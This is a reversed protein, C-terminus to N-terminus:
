AADAPEHEAGSANRTMLLGIQGRSTEGVPVPTSLRGRALVTIRDSIELLEDLDQSIVLIAAGRAAADILSQRINAAAAADIGWSPQNVVILKPNLSLDRGMVYKQLNGGSLRRAAPNADSSAVQFRKMVKSAGKRLSAWDVVGSKLVGESANWSLLLNSSLTVAPLTAHGLREEPIFSAGMKRRQTITHDSVETDHIRIYGHTGTQTESSITEGSLFEFLETQGNGAIGAIGVIEGACVTLNISKLAVAHTNGPCTSVNILELWKEGRKHPRPEIEHIHTGVMLSALAKASMERPDCRAVVKGQRLITAVSCHARVEDLKHSIFLIGVGTARLQHLVSFLTESEAPTLVSTPEDLIILEPKQLLCRIIEIRQREGASLTWVFRDPQVALGYADGLALVDDRLASDAKRGDCGLAINELVTMNEFLSFHQFVMGIGHQRAEAPSKLHVPKGGLHIEGSDPQQLGYLIKVLTSKGAGNEGLLAQIQGPEIILDIGDNAAFSGFRRTIGALEALPPRKDKFDQSLM